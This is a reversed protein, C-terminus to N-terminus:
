KKKYTKIEIQKQIHIQHKIGITYEIYDGSRKRLSNEYTSVIQKKDSMSLKKFFLHIIAFENNIIQKRRCFYKIKILIDKPFFKIFRVALLYTLVVSAYFDKEHGGFQTM